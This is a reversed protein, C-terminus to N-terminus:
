KKEFVSLYKREVINDNETIKIPIWKNFKNSYQCVFARKVQTDVYKDNNINEFEEDDDSEELADLNNNEKINRFVNNMLVSTKYDQIYAIDYYEEVEGNKCYLSYVDNKIEAKITFIVSIEAESYLLNYKKKNNAYRFQLCYINYSLTPIISLLETYNTSMVPLGFIISNNLVYSQKLENDLIFKMLMITEKSSYHSVDKNKYYYIDEIFFFRNKVLTGYLITNTALSEKYCSIVNKIKSIQTKKYIELLVCTSKEEFYTFWAFYKKGYPIAVCYDNNEVKKHIIKEYSLQIHPFRQLINEFKM